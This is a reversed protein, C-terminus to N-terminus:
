LNCIRRLERERYQIDERVGFDKRIETEEDERVELDERVRTEEMLFDIYIVFGGYRGNGINFIRGLESIRRVETEEDERFGM